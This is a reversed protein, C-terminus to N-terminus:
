PLDLHEGWVLVRRNPNPASAGEQLLLFSAGFHHFELDHTLFRVEPNYLPAIQTALQGLNFQVDPSWGAAIKQNVFGLIGVDNNDGFHLIDKGNLRLMYCNNEVNFPDTVNPITMAPDLFSGYQAGAFSCWTLPGLQHDSTDSPVIMTAANPAGVYLAHNKIEQTCIVPKGRVLMEYVLQSSVHDSHIHTIFLADLVNAMVQIQALEIPQNNPTYATAQFPGECIDVGVTYRQGSADRGQVIWSSSYLKLVRVGTTPPPSNALVNLSEWWRAHYFLSIFPGLAPDFLPHLEYSPTYCAFDLFDTILKRIAWDNAGTAEPNYTMLWGSMPYSYDSLQAQASVERAGSGAALCIFVIATAVLNFRIM